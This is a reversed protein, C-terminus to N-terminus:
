WWRGSSSCCKSHVRCSDGGGQARPGLAVTGGITALRYSGRVGLYRTDSLGRTQTTPHQYPVFMHEISDIEMWGIRDGPDRGTNIRQTNLIPIM